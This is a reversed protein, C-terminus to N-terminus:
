APGADLDWDLGTTFLAEDDESSVVVGELAAKLSAPGRAPVLKAVIRGHKTIEIEEGAAVEDLLALIRSKAETATLRRVM